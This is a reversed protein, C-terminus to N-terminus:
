MICHDIDIGVIGDEEAFVFGIGSYMRGGGPWREEYAERVAEFTNWTRPDTSSAPVGYVTYPVKGARWMVWRELERLEAPVKDFAVIGGPGYLPTFDFTLEGNDAM